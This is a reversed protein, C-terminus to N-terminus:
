ATAIPESLARRVVLMLCGESGAAEAEHPVHGDHYLMTGACLETGNVVLSGELVYTFKSQTEHYRHFAHHPDARVLSIPFRDEGPEPKVLWSEEQGPATTTGTPHDLDLVHLGREAL